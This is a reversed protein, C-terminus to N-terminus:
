YPYYGTLTSLDSIFGSSSTTTKCPDTSIHGLLEKRCCPCSTHNESPVDNSDQKYDLWEYICDRHFLTGCGMECSAIYEQDKIDVLCIPCATYSSSGNEDLQYRSPKLAEQCTQRRTSTISAYKICVRNQERLSVTIQNWTAIFKYVVVINTITVLSIYLILIFFLIGTSSTWEAFFYVEDTDTDQEVATNLGELESNKIGGCYCDSDEEVKLSITSNEKNLLLSSYSSAPVNEESLTLAFAASIALIAPSLSRSETSWM